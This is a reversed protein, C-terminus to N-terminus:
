PLARVVECVAAAFLIVFVAVAIKGVFLWTRRNM